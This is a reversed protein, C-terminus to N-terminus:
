RSHFPRLKVTNVLRGVRRASAAVLRRQAVRLKKSPWWQPRCGVGKLVEWGVSPTAHFPRERELARTFSGPAGLM